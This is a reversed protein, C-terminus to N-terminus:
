LNDPTFTVSRQSEDAAVVVRARALNQVRAHPDAPHGAAQATVRAALFRAGPTDFVVERTQAFTPSPSAVPQDVSLVGVGELDWAMSCLVGPEPAEATLTVTVPEGPRVRVADSPQGQQASM